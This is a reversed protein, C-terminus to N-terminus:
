NRESRSLSRELAALGELDEKYNNFYPLLDSLFIDAEVFEDNACLQSVQEFGRVIVKARSGMAAPTLADAKPKREAM